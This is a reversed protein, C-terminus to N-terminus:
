KGNNIFKETTYLTGNLPSVTIVGDVSVKKLVSLLEANNLVVVYEHYEKQWDDIKILYNM